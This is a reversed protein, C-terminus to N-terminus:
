SRRRRRWKRAAKKGDRWYFGAVFCVAGIAIHVAIVWTVLLIVLAGAAGATVLAAPSVYKRMVASRLNGAHRGGRKIVPKSPAWDAKTGDPATRPALRGSRNLGVHVVNAEGAGTAISPAALERVMEAPIGEVVPRKADTM